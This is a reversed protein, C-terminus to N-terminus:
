GVESCDDFAIRRIMMNGPFRPKAVKVDQDVLTEFEVKLLDNDAFQEGDITVKKLGNAIFTWGEHTGEYQKTTLKFDRLSVKVSIAESTSNDGKVNYFPGYISCDDGLKAKLAEHAQAKSWEAGPMTHIELQTGAPVAAYVVERKTRTRKGTTESEAASVAADAPSKSKAM